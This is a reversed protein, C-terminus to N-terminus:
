AATKKAAEEKERKRALFRERASSIDSETKKSKSAKELREQEEKDAELARKRSEELQQEMMRTQRERAGSDRKRSWHASDDQKQITASPKTPAAPSALVNLGATLLQRKDAVQGEDNLTINIGKAALEAVRDKEQKTEQDDAIDDGALKRKEMEAAAELAEQHRRESDAMVNRYFGQMGGGMKRKREEEEAAKKEEEERLRQNEEQQAKYAGTVFSEKDAFEEGENEREKQLFKERAVQQDQKRQAAATLLANMYKPGQNMTEQKAAAKRASAASTAASHFSDYDYITPDLETAQAAYAASERQASLDSYESPDVGQPKRTPPKTPVSGPKPRSLPKKKPAPAPVSPRSPKSADLETLEEEFVNSKSAAAVPTDDDSDDGLVDMAVPRRKPKPPSVPAKSKTNLGFSLSM